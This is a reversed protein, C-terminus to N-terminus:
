DEARVGQAGAALPAALAAAAAILVKRMAAEWTHSHFRVARGTLM